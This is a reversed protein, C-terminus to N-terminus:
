AEPMSCAGPKLGTKRRQTPKSAIASHTRLVHTGPAALLATVTTAVTPLEQKLFFLFSFNIRPRPRPDMNHQTVAHGPHPSREPVKPTARRWLTWPTWASRPDNSGPKPDTGCAKPRDQARTSTRLWKQELTPELSTAARKAICHHQM